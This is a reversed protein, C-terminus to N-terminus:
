RHDKLAQIETPDVIAKPERQVQTGETEWEGRGQLVQFALYAVIAQTYFLSSLAIWNDRTCIRCSLVLSLFDPGWM